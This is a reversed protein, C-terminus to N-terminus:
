HFVKNDVGTLAAALSHGVLKSSFNNVSEIFLATRELAFFIHM